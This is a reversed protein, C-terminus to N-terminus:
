YQWLPQTNDTNENPDRFSNADLKILKTPDIDLSMINDNKKTSNHKIDFDEDIPDDNMSQDDDDDNLFSEFNNNNQNDNNLTNTEISNQKTEIDINNINSLTKNNTTTESESDLDINATTKTENLEFLHKTQISKNITKNSSHNIDADNSEQNILENDYLSM